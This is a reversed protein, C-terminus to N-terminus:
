EFHGGEKQICLLCRKKLDEFVSSLTIKSIKKIEKKIEEKLEEISEYKKKYVKNKLYGWLFFDCPNLDPSRPPWKDSKLFKDGFTATGNRFRVWEQVFKARHAPAGDQQFYYQSHQKQRRHEPLYFQQLMQLYNDSNVESEFFYPGIIKNKSIACWVLCKAPKLQKEVVFNPNNQSWIRFNYNNVNGYIHFYAEDSATFFQEVLPNDRFWECFKKRRAYDAQKLQHVLQIRYPYLNLISRAIKHASGVSIGTANATRRISMGPSNELLDRVEEVIEDTVVTKPPGSRPLEHVSGTLNFKKIISNYTRYCPVKKKKFEKRYARAFRTYSGFIKFNTVIFNKEKLDLRM